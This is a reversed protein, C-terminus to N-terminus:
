FLWVESCPFVFMIKTLSCIEVSSIRYWRRSYGRYNLFHSRVEFLQVPIYSLVDLSDSKSIMSVLMLPLTSCISCQFIITEKIHRVQVLLFAQWLIGRGIYPLVTAVRLYPCRGVEFLDTMIRMPRTMRRFVFNDAKCFRGPWFFM